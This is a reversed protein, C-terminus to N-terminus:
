VGVEKIFHLQKFTASIWKFTPCTYTTVNKIRKNRKKWSPHLHSILSLTIYNIAKLLTYHNISLQSVMHTDSICVFM